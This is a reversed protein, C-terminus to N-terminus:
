VWEESLILNEFLFDLISISTGFCYSYSDWLFAVLHNFCQYILCVKHFTLEM